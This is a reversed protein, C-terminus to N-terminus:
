EHKIEFPEDMQIRYSKIINGSISRLSKEVNLDPDWIYPMNDYMAWREWMSEDYPKTKTTNLSNKTEVSTGRRYTPDISLQRLM